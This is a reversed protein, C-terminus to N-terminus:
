PQTSGAPIGPAQVPAGDTTPSPAITSQPSDIPRVESQVNPTPLVPSLRDMELADKALVAGLAAILAFTAALLANQRLNRRQLEANARSANGILKAGQDKGEGGLLDPHPVIHGALYELDQRRMRRVDSPRIQGERCHDYLLVWVPNGETYPLAPITPAKHAEALKVAESLRIPDVDELLDKYYWRTLKEFLRSM